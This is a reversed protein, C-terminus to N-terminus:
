GFHVTALWASLESAAAPDPTTSSTSEWVLTPPQTTGQDVIVVHALRNPFIGLCNNADTRLDTAEQCYAFGDAQKTLTVDMTTAPKGDVAATTVV